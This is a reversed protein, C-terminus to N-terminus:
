LHHVDALRRDHLICPRASLLERDMAPDITKGIAPQMVEPETDVTGGIQLLFIRGRQRGIAANGLSRHLSSRLVYFTTHLIYYTSAPLQLDEGAQIIMLELHQMIVDKGLPTM